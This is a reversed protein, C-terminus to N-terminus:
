ARNRWEEAREHTWPVGLLEVRIWRDRPEDNEVFIRIADNRTLMIGFRQNWIAHAISRDVIRRATGVNEASVTITSPRWQGVIGVDKILEDASGPDGGAIADWLVQLATPDKLAPAREYVRIYELDFPLDGTWMKYGLEFRHGVGGISESPIERAEIAMSVLSM